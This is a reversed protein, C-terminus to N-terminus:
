SLKQLFDVSKDYLAPLQRSKIYMGYTEFLFNKGTFKFGDYEFNSKQEKAVGARGEAIPWAMGNECHCIMGM